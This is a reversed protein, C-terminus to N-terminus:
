SHLRSVPGALAAHLERVVGLREEWLARTTAEPEYRARVPVLAALDDVTLQGTSVFAMFAAGRANAHRPNDLQEIPRGVVDAMISSWVDSQAGGGVFRITDFATGLTADVEDALWRMQMSIGEIMARAMDARTTRLSLGLLAGRHRPDPAPALSGFVWPLFVVGNSGSRSKAALQMAEDFMNAPLDHDVGMVEALAAELVKGGLGGEAVVYYRDDLASPMTVIFKASNVHRVPHHAVFVGTTGMVITAQGSDLAASGFAAAISDNAATVVVVDNSIGLQGAVDIRIPALVGLSPTLPPLRSADVGARDILETSWCTEGLQRNDTLALPMASNATAAICGTFRANLYDMPELYAATRRHIDPQNQFWLIHALSGGPGFGHIEAWRAEVADGDDGATLAATYSAGRQDFWMHLPAVPMGHADVPVISSWQSAVCISRVAKAAASGAEALAQRCAELTSAWVVEADQEGVGGRGYITPIRDLGSGLLRGEVTVVSAKCATSGLDVALANV